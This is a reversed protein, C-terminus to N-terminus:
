KRPVSKAECKGKEKGEEREKLGKEEEEIKKSERRQDGKGQSKREADKQEREVEEISQIM